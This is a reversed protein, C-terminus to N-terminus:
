IFCSLNTDFLICGHHMIRGNIYAQANGCIKQGGIMVLDNRGTFSAEVGLEKL